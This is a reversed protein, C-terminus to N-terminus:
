GIGFVKYALDLKLQSAFYTGQGSVFNGSKDLRITGKVKSETGKYTTSIAVRLEDKDELMRCKAELNNTTVIHRKSSLDTVVVDVYDVLNSLVEFLYRRRQKECM